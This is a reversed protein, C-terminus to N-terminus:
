VEMNGAECIVQGMLRRDHVAEAEESCAVYLLLIYLSHFLSSVELGDLVTQGPPPRLRGQAGPLLTSFISGFDRNVQACAAALTKKKKEDLEAMVQVLKARDAEVIKKKSMVDQYQARCMGVDFLRKDGVPLCYKAVSM